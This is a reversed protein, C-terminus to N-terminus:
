NEKALYVTTSPFAFDVGDAKMAEFDLGGNHASVDVGRLPYVDASPDAGPALWHDYALWAGAAVALLAAAMLLVRLGRRRMLARDPTQRPTGNM